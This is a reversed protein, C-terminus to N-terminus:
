FLKFVKSSILILTTVVATVALFMVLFGIERFWDPAGNDLWRLFNNVPLTIVGALILGFGLFSFYMGPLSQWGFPLGALALLVGLGTLILAGKLEQERLEFLNLKMM